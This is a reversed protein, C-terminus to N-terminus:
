LDIKQEILGKCKWLASLKKDRSHTVQKHCVEHLLKLNGMENGGGKRRPKVHHVEVAEDALLSQECVPCKGKQIKLLKTRVRGLLLTHKHKKQERKLFYELNDPNYPNLNKCVYHRKLKVYAIQFLTMEGSDSQPCKFIWKNNGRSTFYRGYLYGKSRKPHKKRIFKWLIIWLHRNVDSFVKQSTVTCYHEAWGRLIQNIKTILVHMPKKKHAKVTESLKRKFSKVKNLQPKVLLIGQKKGKIRNSDPYERLHYGVFDFGKDINIIQTKDLNLAIGRHSLFNQCRPMADKELEEKRKGLVVFDDAYRCVLYEKGLALQLGNLTMNAIVPSILGGQPFGVETDYYEKFDLFGARLFEKLIKKNMPINELLWEHSVSDFFKLIDAELVWRRTATVSGLVLKLYMAVDIVSRYRRFGYSRSDAVEEAIPDLAFMYLAQVARDYMIPIGLPRLQGNGKPIYVRRVPKAKYEQLSKLEHIAEMKEKVNNWVKGDIGPTKNGKNTTVRRVALARASFSRVLKTQLREVEALNKTQWAKLIKAQTESLQQYCSNWDISHYNRANKSQMEANKKLKM